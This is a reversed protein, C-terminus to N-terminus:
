ISIKMTRKLNESSATLTIEESDPNDAIRLVGNETMSATTSPSVNWHVTANTPKGKDFLIAQCFFEKKPYMEMPINNWVLCRTEGKLSANPELDVIGTIEPSIEGLWGVNELCAAQIKVFHIKELRAYNGQADVAWDIDMADGGSGELVDLTYPNDPIMVSSSPQRPRNDAYGFGFPLLEVYNEGKKRINSSLKSTQFSVKEQPYDPFFQPLPYYPQQHYQNALLMGKKGNSDEWPINSAKESFPNFYTISLAHQTTPFYDHSGALRYWTDDPLGNQNDDHMVWVSAPEASISSANGFITFDMGYPNNPDNEIPKQFGLVIYGGLSGLSIGGNLGGILSNARQPTGWAEQNIFQGPAPRYEWVKQVYQGLSVRVLFILMWATGVLWKEM